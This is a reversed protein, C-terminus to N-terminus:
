VRQLGDHQVVRDYELLRQASVGVQYPPRLFPPIADPHLDSSKRPRYETPGRSVRALLGLGPHLGVHNPPLLLLVAALLVEVLAPECLLGLGGDSVHDFAQAGEERVSAGASGDFEGANARLEESPQSAYM